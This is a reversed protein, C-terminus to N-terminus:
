VRDLVQLRRQYSPSDNVVAGNVEVWAHSLFPVPRYGIVLHADIGHQRMMRVTVTSRQLCRVPKWYLTTAWEFSKVLEPVPPALKRARVPFAALRNRIAQFGGLACTFDYIALDVLCRLIRGIRSWTM